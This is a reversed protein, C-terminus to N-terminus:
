ANRGDLEIQVREIMPDAVKQFFKHKAYMNLRNLFKYLDATTEKSLEMNDWAEM